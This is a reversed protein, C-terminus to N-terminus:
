LDVGGREGDGTGEGSAEFGVGDDGIERSAKEVHGVADAVVYGYDIQLRARFELAEGGAAAGAIEFTGGIAGADIAGV